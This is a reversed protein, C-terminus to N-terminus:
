ARRTALASALVGVARRKCKIRPEQPYDRWRLNLEDGKGEVSMVIAEFWGNEGDSALVMAGVVIADWPDGNGTGNAAKAATQAEIGTAPTESAAAESKEHRVEADTGILVALKDFIDRKVFPVLGKGTVFIKGVPLETAVKQLESDGVNVAHFNMMGAARVAQESDAPSFRSAHPKGEADVGLVVLMAMSQTDDKQDTM